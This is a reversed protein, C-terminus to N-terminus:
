THQRYALGIAVSAIPTLQNIQEYNFASANPQINHFPNLVQCPLQLTKTIEDLCHPLHAGGGTIFVTQVPKDPVSATYFEITKKVEKALNTVEELLIQNVPEALPISKKLNEADTFSIQLKQSIRETIAIGAGNIERTFIPIMKQFVIFKIASAGIDIILINSDHQSPYSKELVHGFALVDVDIIFPELGAETICQMYTQVLNKQTGVLLIDAQKNKIKSLLQYDLSVETFDFPFYQEAEWLIANNLETMKEVEINLRKIIITPGSLSTCVKENGIGIQKCLSKLTQTVIDPNIIDGNVITDAPLNAMGFRILQINTSKFQLAALKITSSGINLGYYVKPKFKSFLSPLKWKSLM